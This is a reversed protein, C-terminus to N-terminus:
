HAKSIFKSNIGTVNNLSQKNTQKSLENKVKNLTSIQMILCVIQMPQVFHIAKVTSWSCM